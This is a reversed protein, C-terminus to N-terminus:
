TEIDSASHSQIEPGIHGKPKLRYNKRRHYTVLFYLSALVLFTLVEFIGTLYFAFDYSHTVDSIKGVITATPITCIGSVTYSIGIALPYADAGVVKKFVLPRIVTLMGRSFGTLFILFVLPAYTSCMPVFVFFTASSIYFTFFIPVLLPRTNCLLSCCAFILRSCMGAIGLLMLATVGQIEPHGRSVWFDVILLPILVSCSISIATAASLILFRKNKIINMDFIKYKEARTRCTQAKICTNLLFAPLFMNLCLGSIIFLTERWSYYDLLSDLLYPVCLTGFPPCITFVIFFIQHNNSFLTELAAFGVINNISAGSGFLIGLSFFLFWINPAFSSAILGVSCLVAAVIFAWCVGIKRYLMGAFIGGCGLIASCASTIMATQSKTTNFERMWHIYLIGSSSSVGFGMVNSYVIFFYAMYKMWCVISPSCPVCSKDNQPAFKVSRKSANDAGPPDSKTTTPTTAKTNTDATTTDTTTTITTTTDTTTTDTTTTDTTTTNTTTTITTTTDTTTTNTTTTNTTVVAATVNTITTCGNHTSVELLSDSNKSLPAEIATKKKEKNDVGTIDTKGSIITTTNDNTNTKTVNTTSTNTTTTNTANPNINTTITNINTANPNINTTITNINTTTTDTNTANPKINTTTTNTTNPKINTTTTNINTTTTNINTTTTNTTNPKINTTTTNTTNPKINTTATNTTNPKINTTTTNTTNPKINTTTPKINTTTTNTTNPKINTTTPKINTTITNINTTTTSANTNTTSCSDHLCSEPLSGKQLSSDKVFAVVAMTYSNEEKEGPLGGIVQVPVIIEDTHSM